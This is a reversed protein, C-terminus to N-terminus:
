EEPLQLLLLGGLPLLRKTAEPFAAVQALLVLGALGAVSLGLKLPLVTGLLARQREHDTQRATDRTLFINLGLDCAAGAFGVLTLVLAYSGLGEASEYRAVLAVLVLSLLRALAQASFRALANKSVRLFSHGEFSM